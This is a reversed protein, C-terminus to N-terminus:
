VTITINIPEVSENDYFYTVTGSEMDIANYHNSGDVFKMPALFKMFLRKDEALFTDGQTLQKFKFDRNDSINITVM